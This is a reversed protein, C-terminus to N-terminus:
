HRPNPRDTIYTHKHMYNMTNHKDQCCQSYTHRTKKKKLCFVAYSIRMLSQLESTHEESRVGPTFLHRNTTQYGPADREDLGYGYFEFSAGSLPLPIQYDVGYLQVDTSERDWEVHNHRIGHADSPLRTQPM